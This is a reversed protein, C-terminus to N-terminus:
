VILEADQFGVFGANCPLLNTENGDTDPVSDMIRGIIAALTDGDIEEETFGDYIFRCNDLLTADQNMADVSDWLHINGSCRYLKVEGQKYSSTTVGRIDWVGAVILHKTIIQNKLYM